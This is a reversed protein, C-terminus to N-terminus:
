VGLRLNGLPASDIGDRRLHHHQQVHRAGDLIHALLDGLHLSLQLLTLHRRRLLLRQAPPFPELVLHALSEDGLLLLLQGIRQRRDPVVLGRDRLKLPQLNSLLSSLLIILILLSSFCFFFPNPTHPPLSMRSLM